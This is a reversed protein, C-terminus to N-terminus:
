SIGRIQNELQIAKLFQSGALLGMGRTVAWSASWALPVGRYTM